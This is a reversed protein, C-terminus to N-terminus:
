NAADLSDCHTAFLHGTVTGAAFTLTVDLAVFGDPDSPAPMGSCTTCVDAAVPTITVETATAGPPGGLLDGQFDLISGPSTSPTADTPVPVRGLILTYDPPPSSEIPCGAAGGRYVEVHLSPPERTFGYVARDLMRTTDLMATLATIRCAGTCSAFGGADAAADASAADATVDTGDDGCASGLALAPALALALLSRRRSRSM